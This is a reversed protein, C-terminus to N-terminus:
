HCAKARLDAAVSRMTAVVETRRRGPADNWKAIREGPVVRQLAAYAGRVAEAHGRGVRLVAGIACFRCASPDRELVKRGKIDKAYFGQCWGSYMLLDAAKELVDAPTM